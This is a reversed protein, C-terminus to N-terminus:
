IEIQMEILDGQYGNECVKSKRKREEKREQCNPPQTRWNEFFVRFPMKGQWWNFNTTSHLSFWVCIKAYTKTTM